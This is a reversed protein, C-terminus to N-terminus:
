DCHKFTFLTDSRVMSTLLIGDPEGCASETQYKYNSKSPIIYLTKDGPVLECGEKMLLCEGDNQFFM